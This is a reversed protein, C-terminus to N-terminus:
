ISIGMGRVEGRNSFDCLSVNLLVDLGLPGAHFKLHLVSKPLGTKLTLLDGSSSPPLDRGIM